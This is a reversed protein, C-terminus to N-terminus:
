EAIQVACSRKVQLGASNDKVLYFGGGIELAPVLVGKFAASAGTDPDSVKGSMLGTLVSARVSPKLGTDTKISTGSAIVNAVNQGDAYVRMGAYRNALNQGKAYYAGILSVDGSDFDATFRDGTWSTSKGPYQWESGTLYVRNDDLGASAGADIWVMGGMAGRSRYLPVYLAFCAYKRGAVGGQFGLAPLDAGDYVQLSSTGSVKSGDALLGSYKVSARSNVTLTLYGVGKPQNNVPSVTNSVGKIGLAATYYGAFPAMDGAATKRGSVPLGNFTGTFFGRSDVQVRLDQARGAPSNTFGFSGDTATSKVGSVRLTDSAAGQKVKVTIRGTSSAAMQIVGRVTAGDAKDFVVGSYSGIGQAPFTGAPAPPTVPPTVPPNVPPNVVTGNIATTVRAIFGGGTGLAGRAVFQDRKGGSPSLIVIEPYATVKGWRGNGNILSSWNPSAYYSEKAQDVWILVMPNAALFAKWRGDANSLVAQDWKSCYSCNGQNVFALMIPRGAAAAKALGENYKYTWQNLQVTSSNSIGPYASAVLALGAAAIAPIAYKM